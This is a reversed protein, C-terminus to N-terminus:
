IYQIPTDALAEIAKAYTDVAMNTEIAFQLCFMVLRTDFAEFVHDKYAISPYKSLGELLADVNERTIEKSLGVVIVNEQSVAKLGNLLAVYPKSSMQVYMTKSLPKSALELIWEKPCSVVIQKCDDDEKFLAYAKQMYEYAKEDKHETDFILATYKM